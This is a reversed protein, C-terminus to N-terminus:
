TCSIRGWEGDELGNVQTDFFFFVLM